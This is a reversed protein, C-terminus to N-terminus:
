VTGQLENRPYFLKLIEDADKKLEILTKNYRLIIERCSILSDYIRNEFLKIGEANDKFM